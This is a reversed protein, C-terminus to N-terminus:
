DDEFTIVMVTGHRLGEMIGTNYAGLVTLVWTATYLAFYGYRMPALGLVEVANEVLGCIFLVLAASMQWLARRRAFYPDWRFLKRDSPIKRFRRSM